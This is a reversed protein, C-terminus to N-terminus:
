RHKAKSRKAMSWRRKRRDFVNRGDSSGGGGGDYGGIDRSGASSGSSDSKINEM